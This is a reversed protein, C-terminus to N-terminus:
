YTDQSIINDNVIVRRFVNNRWEPTVSSSPLTKASEDPAKKGLLALARSFIFAARQQDLSMFLITTATDSEWIYVRVCLFASKEIVARPASEQLAAGPFFWLLMAAPFWIQSVAPWNFKWAAHMKLLDLLFLSLHRTLAVDREACFAFLMPDIKWVRAILLFVWAAHVRMYKIKM